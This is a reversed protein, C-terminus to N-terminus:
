RKSATAPAKPPAPWGAVLGILGGFLTATRVNSTLICTGSQCGIFHSYTALAAAGLGAGAVAKWGGARVWQGLRRMPRRDEQKGADRLDTEAM